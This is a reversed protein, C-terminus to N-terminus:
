HYDALNKAKRDSVRPDLSRQEGAWFEFPRHPLFVIKGRERAM